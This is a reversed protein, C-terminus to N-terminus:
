TGSSVYGSCKTGINGTSSYFGKIFPEYLGSQLFKKCMFDTDSLTLIFNWHFDLYNIKVQMELPFTTGLVM